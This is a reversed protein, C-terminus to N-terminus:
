KEAKDSVKWLLYSLRHSRNPHLRSAHVATGPWSRAGDDRNADVFPISQVVNDGKDVERYYQHKEISQM